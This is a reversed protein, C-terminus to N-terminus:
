AGRPAGEGRADAELLALRRIADLQRAVHLAAHVPDTHFSGVIVEGPRGALRVAVKRETMVRCAMGAEPLHWRWAHPSPRHWGAHGLVDALTGAFRTAFISQM